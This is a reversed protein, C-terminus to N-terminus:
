KHLSLVYSSIDAIERKTLQSGFPPMARKGENITKVISTSDFRSARLNAANGIGATGDNGHCAACKQEFIVQGKIEAIPTKVNVVPKEETTNNSSSNNGNCAYLSLSIIFFSFLIKLKM